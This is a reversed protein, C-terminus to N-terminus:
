FDAIDPEQMDSSEGEWSRRTASRRAAAATAAIDLPGALAAPGAM